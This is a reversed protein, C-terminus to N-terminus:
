WFAFSVVVSDTRQSVGVASFTRGQAAEVGLVDFFNESVVRAAVTTTGAPTRWVISSSQLAAADLRTDQQLLDKYNPYSIGPWITVLREPAAAGTVWSSFLIGRLVTYVAVNIGAGIGISLTTALLLLPRRGLSRAAYRVDNVAADLRLFGRQDRSRE